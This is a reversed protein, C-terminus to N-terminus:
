TTLREVASATSLKSGKIHNRIAVGAEKDASRSNKKALRALTKSETETLTVSIRKDAM